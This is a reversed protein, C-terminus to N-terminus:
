PLTARGERTPSRPSSTSLHVKAHPASPPVEGRRSGRRRDQMWTCAMYSVLLVLLVGGVPVWPGGDGIGNIISRGLDIPDVGSAGTASPGAGTPLSLTLPFSFLGGGHRVFGFASLGEIDPLGAFPAFATTPAISGSGVAAGQGGPLASPAAPIVSSATTGSSGAFEADGSYVASISNDGAPLSKTHCSTGAAVSLSQCGAVPAGNAYFSMSGGFDTTSLQANLVVNHGISSSAPSASATVSSPVRSPQFIPSASLSQFERWGSSDLPWTFRGGQGPADFYLVAKILPFNGASSVQDEIQQFYDAQGGALSGTESIMM